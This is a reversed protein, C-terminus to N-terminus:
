ALLVRKRLLDFSARGYMQRKILKLKNVQGEVQGNSWVSTMAAKVADYDLRLGHIFTRLIIINSTEGEDLWADFADPRKESFMKKFSHVRNYMAKSEDHQFLFELIFREQEDLDSAEKMFLWALQPTSPLFSTSSDSKKQKKNSTKKPRHKSPKSHQPQLWKFVQWPKGPYGKEVIERWLQSANECGEGLRKELYPLYPDLISAPRAHRQHHPVEDAQIYARVTHRHIGLKKSIHVQKMGADYLDNVQKYLESKRESSVKASVQAAKTTRSLSPKHPFLRIRKLEMEAKIPLKLLQKQLSRFWRELMQRLNQLLHWRDAVQEAAPATEKAAKAYDRSRDRSIIKIGPRVKLWTALGESDRGELLDIVRHKELDVLITGYRERKKMAWDDVGLVRPTEIPPLPQLNIDRLLTDASVPMNLGAALATGAEGGLM